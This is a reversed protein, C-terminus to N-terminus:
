ENKKNPNYNLAQIILKDFSGLEREESPLDDEGNEQLVHDLLFPFSRMVIQNLITKNVNRLVHSLLCGSAEKGTLTEVKVISADCGKRYFQIITEDLLYEGTDLLYVRIDKAGLQVKGVKVIKNAM